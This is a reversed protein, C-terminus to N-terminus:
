ADLPLWRRVWSSGAGDAVVPRAGDNEQAQWSAAQRASAARVAGRDRPDLGDGRASEGERLLRRWQAQIYQSAQTSAVFEEVIEAFREPHDKHPFHGSNELVEIRAWPVLVKANAAHIVPIVHDERGWVVCVPMGATLYARDWMTVIQGRVDVVAKVVHRTAARARPDTFSEYIRSVESLERTGPLGTRHATRLALSGVHRVGPLTLAGMVTQFGPLTMARLAPSVERGLGGSSVLVLRECMQPFQYSFQMAIGGGFSHGVVTVRKIRLVALLDRMGNAYGGLSYDARPKDSEGHGLLDPVLVTHTRALREIVPDWTRHDCGIGHILLLVPGEGVKVFARRHGNVVRYQVEHGDRTRKTDATM